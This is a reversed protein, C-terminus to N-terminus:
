SAQSPISWHLSPESSPVAEQKLWCPENYVMSITSTDEVESRKRSNNM